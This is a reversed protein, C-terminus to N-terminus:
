SGEGQIGCDSPLWVESTVLCTECDLFMGSTVFSRFLSEAKGVIPARDLWPEIMWKSYCLELVLSADHSQYRPSQPDTTCHFPCLVWIKETEILYRGGATHFRRENKIKTSKANRKVEFKHFIDVKCKLKIGRFIM